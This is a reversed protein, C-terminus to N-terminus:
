HITELAYTHLWLYAAIVLHWSLRFIVNISFGTGIPPWTSTLFALIQGLALAILLLGLPRPILKYAFYTTSMSMVIFPINCTVLAIYALNALAREISPSSRQFEITYLCFWSVWILTAGSTAIIQTFLTLEQYGPPTFLRCTRFVAYISVHYSFVTALLAALLIAERLGLAQSDNIVSQGQGTIFRRFYAENIGTYANIIFAFAVCLGQFFAWQATRRQYSNEQSISSIM